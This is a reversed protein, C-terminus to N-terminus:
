QRSRKGPIDAPYSKDNDHCSSCEPNKAFNENIHCDKCELELHVDSLVLGTSKHEFEGKIFNKHCSTCNNDLKKFPIKNGHCKACALKSHHENLNWGTSKGHNFPSMESEKHCKQCTNRNHCNSCAKHSEEETRILKITKNLDRSNKSEHCKVCNDGSHCDSCSLKFLQIHEDHYFTVLKGKEYNTEWVKKTPEPRVPHTKNSIEKITQELRVQNEPTKRSHCQTNCGNDRSWQVHCKM